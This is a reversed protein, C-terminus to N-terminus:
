KEIINQGSFKIQKIELSVKNLFTGINTKRNYAASINNHKKNLNSFEQVEQTFSLMDLWYYKYENMSLFLTTYCSHETGVEQKVGKKDTYAAHRISDRPEFKYYKSIFYSLSSSETLKTTSLKHCDNYKAVFTEGNKKYFIYTPDTQNCELFEERYCYPKYIFFTDLKSKILSDISLPLVKIADIETPNPTQGHILQQLLLLGLIIIKKSNKM